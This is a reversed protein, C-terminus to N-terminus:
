IDLDEVEPTALNQEVLDALEAPLEDRLAAVSDYVELAGTGGSGSWDSSGSASEGNWGVHWDVDWDQSWVSNEGSAWRKPDSWRKWDPHVRRHVALAQKATRYVTFDEVQAGTGLQHQWRAVLAGRFRQYRPVDGSGVRVKIESLGQMQAEKATVFGHLAQTIAASLSGGALEQARQFVPLDGDSVYITKNPM